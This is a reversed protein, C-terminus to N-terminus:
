KKLWPGPLDRDACIGSCAQLPFSADPKALATAHRQAVGHDVSLRPRIGVKDSGQGMGVTSVSGRPRRSRKIACRKATSRQYSGWPRPRWSPHSDPPGALSPEGQHPVARQYM